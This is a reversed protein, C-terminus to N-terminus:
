VFNIFMNVASCERGVCLMRRDVDDDCLQTLAPQIAALRAAVEPSSGRTAVELMAELELVRRQLKGILNEASEAVRRRAGRRDAATRRQQTADTEVGM